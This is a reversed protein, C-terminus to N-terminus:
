EAETVTKVKSGLRVLQERFVEASRLRGGEHLYGHPYGSSKKVVTFSPVERTVTKWAGCRECEHRRTFEILYGRRTTTHDGKWEWQHRDSRCFLVDMSMEDVGVKTPAENESVVEIPNMQRTAQGAM